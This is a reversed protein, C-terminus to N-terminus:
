PFFTLWLFTVSKCLRNSMVSPKESLEHRCLLLNFILFLYASFSDSHVVIWRVSVDTKEELQPSVNKTQTRTMASKKAGVAKCGTHGPWYFTRFAVFCHVVVCTWKIPAFGMTCTFGTFRLLTCPVLRLFSKCIVFAFVVVLRRNARSRPSSTKFVYM